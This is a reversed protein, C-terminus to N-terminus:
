PSGNVRAHALKTREASRDRQAQEHRHLQDLRSALKRLDDRLADIRKGHARVFEDQTDLAVRLGDVGTGQADLRKVLHEVDAALGSVEVEMEVLNDRADVDVRSSLSVLALVLASCALIFSLALM